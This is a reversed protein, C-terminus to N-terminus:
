NAPTHQDRIEMLITGLLNRGVWHKRSRANPNNISLGIGWRPDNQSVEIIYTGRTMLLLDLLQPNYEFKAWNGKRMFDTSVKTWEKDDYDRVQRGIKRQVKPSKQEIIEGLTEYDGFFKAKMGQFYQEVCNYWVGDECFPSLYFNSFPCTARAFMFLKESKDASEIIKSSPISSHMKATIIQIKKSLNPM